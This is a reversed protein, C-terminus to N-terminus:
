GFIVVPILIPMSRAPTSLELVLRNTAQLDATEDITLTFEAESHKRHKSHLANVHLNMQGEAKWGVPTLWRIHFHKQEPLNKPFVSIKGSLPKDLSIVPEAAFEVWADAYVNGVRFSYPSRNFMDRVFDDGMFASSDFDDNQSDGDTLAITEQHNLFQELPTRTTTPLLRMVCDTLQTCDDPYNGHGMLLSKTVIKEGIYEMWDDPIGARGQMIGMLAGITAGTCDTDDGCNIALIMSKKFDCGGYLLGLVVFAVNAPAQFWGLDESDKVVNNRATKWDTGNEFDKIVLKISRAVRCDEPIKSLGIEILRNIDSVVFAASQVAAVFITAYSGEGYGHDVCADEFAFAIAKEPQGPYLCAWIETRIWAGNSNKWEENWMEGALPALLGERLNSKGVGYENWHPCIYSLWYEGLTNANVSAPGLDDMAKLWILQLDLDDNPLVVGPPTSFGNIDLLERTGEFPTGMTGGINKGLWCAHIRNRLDKTGFTLM